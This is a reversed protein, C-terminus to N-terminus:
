RAVCGCRADLVAQHPLQENMFGEISVGFGWWRVWCHEGGLELGDVGRASAVDRGERGGSFGVEAGCAGVVDGSQAAALSAVMTGALQGRVRDEIQSAM